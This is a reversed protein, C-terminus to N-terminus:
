MFLHVLLQMPLIKRCRQTITIRMYVAYVYDSTSIHVATSTCHSTQIYHLTSHSYLYHIKGKGIYQVSFYVGSIGDDSSEVRYAAGCALLQRIYDCIGDMHETVQVYVANHLWYYYCTQLSYLSLACLAILSILCIATCTVLLVSSQFNCVATDASV